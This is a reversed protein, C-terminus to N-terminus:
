LSAEIALLVKPEEPLSSTPEWCECRHSMLAKLEQEMPDSVRMHGRHTGVRMHWVSVCVCIYIFCLFVKLCFDAESSPPSFPFHLLCFSNSLLPGDLTNLIHLLPSGPSEHSFCCCLRPIRTNRKWRPHISVSWHWWEWTQLLFHLSGKQTHFKSGISFTVHLFTM